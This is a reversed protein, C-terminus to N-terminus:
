PMHQNAIEPLDFKKEDGVNGYDEEEDEDEDSETTLVYGSVNKARVPCPQQPVVDATVEVLPNNDDEVGNDDDNEPLDIVEKSDRRGMREKVSYDIVEKSEKRHGPLVSSFGLWAPDRRYLPTKGKDPPSVKGKKGNTMTSRKSTLNLKVKQQRPSKPRTITKSSSASSEEDRDFLRPPSSGPSTLSIPELPDDDDGEHYRFRRRRSSPSKTTMVAIGDEGTEWAVDDYDESEALEADDHSRKRVIGDSQEPSQGDGDGEDLSKAFLLDRFYDLDRLESAEGHACALQYDGEMAVRGGEADRAQGDPVYEHLDRALVWFFDHKQMRLVAIHFATPRIRTIREPVMDDTVIIVPWKKGEHEYLWYSGNIYSPIM